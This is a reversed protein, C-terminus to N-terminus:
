TARERRRAARFQDAALTGHLLQRASIADPRDPQRQDAALLGGQADQRVVCDRQLRRQDGAAEAQHHRSRDDRRSPEGARHPRGGPPLRRGQDQLGPQAPLVLARHVDRARAGAPVDGGSGAATAEVGGLRFLDDGRRRARGHRVGAERQRLPDSRLLEPLLHVRQPQVQPHVSDPARLPAGGCRARGPDLGRRQLRGRRRAQRHKRSRLVRSEARVVRRRFARHGPRGASDVRLRHRALRGTNIMTQLAASCAPRGIPTCSCGSSSIRVRFTCPRKPFRGASTSCAPRRRRRSHKRDACHRSEAVGSVPAM